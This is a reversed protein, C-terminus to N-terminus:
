TRIAITLFSPTPRVPYGGAQLVVKFGVSELMKKMLKPDYHSRHYMGDNEQSGCVMKLIHRRADSRDVLHDVLSSRLWKACVLGFHPCSLALAGGKCLVRAWERMALVSERFALHEIAHHSEIMDVASSSFASMDLMDVKMDATDAYKDCNLFGEIRKTGCGIHIGQGVVSRMDSMLVDLYAAKRDRGMFKTLLRDRRWRRFNTFDHLSLHRGDITGANSM